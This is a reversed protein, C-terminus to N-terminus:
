VAEKLKEEIMDCLDLSKHWKEANGPDMKEKSANEWTDAIDNVTRINVDQLKDLDNIVSPTTNVNWKDLGKGIKKKLKWKWTSLDYVMFLVETVVAIAAGVAKMSTAGIKSLTHKLANHTERSFTKGFLDGVEKLIHSAANAIGANAGGMGGFVAFYGELSSRGLNNLVAMLVESVAVDVHSDLIITVENKFNIIEKQIYDDVKKNLEDLTVNIYSTVSKMETKISYPILHTNVYGVMEEKDFHSSKDVEDIVDKTALVKANNIQTPISNRLKEFTPKILKDIAMRIREATEMAAKNMKDRSESDMKAQLYKDSIIGKCKNFLDFIYHDFAQKLSAMRNESTLVSDLHKWFQTCEPMPHDIGDQAPVNKVIFTVDMRSGVLDSVINQIAQVKKDTIDTQEPSRNIVLIVKADESLLEKLSQLFVFDSDQIGIRYSVTYVVIDANPLFNKLVEEHENVISGYGPTDFIHCGNPIINSTPTCLRLRSLNEDPHEALYELGHKDLVEMTADKNIAYYENANIGPMFAVETIAGTTPSAKVPLINEGILSNIISSKGSSTEGLFVIYSDPTSIRDYMFKYLVQVDEDETASVLPQLMRLKDLSSGLVAM